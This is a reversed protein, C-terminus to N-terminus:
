IPNSRFTSGPSNRRQLFITMKGGPIVWNGRQPDKNRKGLLIRNAEDRVLFASGVRPLNEPMITNTKDGGQMTSM